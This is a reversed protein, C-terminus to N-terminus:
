EMRDLFVTIQSGDHMKARLHLSPQRGEMLAVGCASAEERGELKGAKSFAEIVSRVGHLESRLSEPWIALTPNAADKAGELFFIVGQGEGPTNGHWHEPRNAIATVKVPVMPRLSWQTALGGGNYGYFDVPNRQGERDWRYLPPATPDVATTLAVFPGTGPPTVYELSAVEPLVTRQFKAWTMTVEARAAAHVAPEEKKPLLHGFIGGTAEEKKEEPRWLAVVEDLRAYRRRLAPALGLQEFLTEAQAITGASPATQPRLYRLPHMKAEFRCAVEAFSLGKEMDELLSGIMSGRPHCFGAPAEAIAAWVLNDAKRRNPQQSVAKQLEQLWIAPGLVKETRYLADTKLLTVAQALHHPEFEGIARRVNKFDECKEAMTQGATQTRSKHVMAAPPDVHFHSWPGTEPTGWVTEKSLFVGTVEARKVIATMAAMAMRYPEPVALPWLSSKATGDPDIAVLGGFRKVFTRCSHCTHMQRLEEPLHELFAEWLGVADTRFLTRGTDVITHFRTKIASLLTDYEFGPTPKCATTM